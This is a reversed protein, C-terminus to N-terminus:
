QPAIPLEDLDGPAIRNIQPDSWNGDIKYFVQTAQKLPNKFIESFILMAAGVGLGGALVGAIPLSSGLDAQVVAAQDFDRSALGVRGIMGLDAVPGRMLMNNTYAQGAQLLFDASLEDYKLGANFVDRFDLSLRKPLQAISLLALFRGAGPDVDHLQGNLLKFSVSGSLGSLIDGFPSTPWNLEIMAEASRASAIPAYGLQTMTQALDQSELQLSLLSTEGESTKYWGGSGDIIFAPNRITFTQLQAGNSKKNIRFSTQGLPMDEFQFDQIKVLVNPIERPDISIEESDKKPIVLHYKKIDAQIRSNETWPRPFVISGNVQENSIDANWATASPLMLVRVNSFTQGIANLEDLGVDVVGIELGESVTSDRDQNIFELWEDFNVQSYEGLVNIRALSPDITSFLNGNDGGVLIMSHLLWVRDKLPANIDAALMSSRIRTEGIKGAILLKEATQSIPNTQMKITLNLPLLSDRTKAFPAPLKLETGLLNSSIKIDQLGSNKVGASKNRLRIVAELNSNGSVYQAYNKGVLPGLEAESRVTIVTDQNQNETEIIAKLLQGLYVAQLNDSSLTDKTFELTGVFNSLPQKLMSLRLPNGPFDLRGQMKLDNVNALPLQLALQTNADGSVQFNEITEGLVNKLPSTNIWNRTKQMDLPTKIDLELIGKALDAFRAQLPFVRLEGTKVKYADIDLRENKYRVTAEQIQAIPWNNAYRINLGSLDHEVLFEGKGDRFPYDSLAGNFKIKALEIQGGSVSNDLWNVLGYKMKKVPYYRKLNEVGAPVLEANLSMVPSADKTLLLDLDSTFKLDQNEALLKKSTLRWTKNVNEINLRTEFKEFVFTERFVDLNTYKLISSVIDVTGLGQAYQVSGTLGELSSGDDISPLAFNQLGFSADLLELEASESNTESEAHIILNEVSGNLQAWNIKPIRSRNPLQKIIIEVLPAVDGFGFYDAKIELLRINSLMGKQEEPLLAETLNEDSQGEVKELTNEDPLENSSQLGADTKLLVESHIAERTIAQKNRKFEDSVKKALKLQLRNEQPWELVSNGLAFRDAKFLTFEDDDDYSFRVSFANIQDDLVTDASSFLLEDLAITGNMAQIRNETVRFWLKINGLGRSFNLTQEVAGIVPSTDTMFLPRLSQWQQNIEPLQMAESEFLVQWEFGNHLDPNPTTATLKLKNALQKSDANMDLKLLQDNKDINLNIKEVRISQQTVRDRYVLDVNKLNFIGNPIILEPQDQQNQLEADTGNVLIDLDDLSFNNFRLTDDLTRELILESGELQVSAVGLVGTRLFRKIDLVVHAQSFNLLTRKNGPHLFNLDEITIQPGSWRWRVSIGASNIPVGLRASIRQTMDNKIDPNTELFTRGVGILVAMIIILAIVLLLLVRLFRMLWGPKKRHSRRDKRRRLPKDPIVQPTSTNM